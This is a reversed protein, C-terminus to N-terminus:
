AGRAPITEAGASVPRRLDAGSYGADCFEFDTSCECRDRRARDRIAALQSEITMEEAQKQSSVRAYLASRVFGKM